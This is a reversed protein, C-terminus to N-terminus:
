DRRAAILRREMEEEYEAAAELPTKGAPAKRQAFAMMERPRGRHKRVYRDLQEAETLTGSSLRPAVSELADRTNDVARRLIKRM